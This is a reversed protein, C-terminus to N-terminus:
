KGENKVSYNEKKESAGKKKPILRLIFPKYILHYAIMAMILAMSFSLLTLGIWMGYGVPTETLINMILLNQTFGHFLYVFFIYRAVFNIGKEIHRTIFSGYRTVLIYVSVTMLIMSPAYDHIYANKGPIYFEEVSSILLGVAGLAILFIEQRKKLEITDLLYGLVCYFVWSYFIYSTLVQEMGELHYLDQVLFYIFSVAILAKKEGKPMGRLMRSLFPVALYFGALAFVFWLYGLVKAQLFLKLYNKIYAIDPSFGFIYIYNFTTVLFVPIGIKVIRDWYFSWIKGDYKDIIFRGSLMFFLGNCTLTLTRIIERVHWRVPETAADAIYTQGLMHTSIVMLIALIRLFNYNTLVKKESAM